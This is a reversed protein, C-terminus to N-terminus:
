QNPYCYESVRSFSSIFAYATIGARLYSCQSAIIPYNTLITIILYISLQIIILALRSVRGTLPHISSYLIVTLSVELSQCLHCENSLCGILILCVPVSKFKVKNWQILLINYIRKNSCIHSKKRNIITLNIFIFLRCLKISFIEFSIM